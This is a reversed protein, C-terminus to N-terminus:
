DSLILAIKLFDGISFCFFLVFFFLLFFFFM